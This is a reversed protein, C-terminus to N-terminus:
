VSMHKIAQVLRIDMNALETRIDKLHNVNPTERYIGEHMQSETKQIWNNLSTLKEFTKTIPKYGKIRIEARYVIKGNKKKYKRITAM